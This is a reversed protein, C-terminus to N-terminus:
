NEEEFGIDLFFKGLKGKYFAVKSEINPTLVELGKGLFIAPPTLRFEGEQFTDSMYTTTRGGIMNAFEALYMYVDNPEDLRDGFNMTLAIKVATELDCELYIRGMSNGTIGIIIAIKYPYECIFRKCPSFESDLLEVCIEEFAKKTFGLVQKFKQKEM